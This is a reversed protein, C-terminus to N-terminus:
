LNIRRMTLADSSNIQSIKKQFITTNWKDFTVSITKGTLSKSKKSILFNLCDIIKQYPTGGTKIKKM